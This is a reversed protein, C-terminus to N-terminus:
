GAGGALMDVLQSAITVRFLVRKLGRTGSIVSRLQRARREDPAIWVVLPFTGHAEQERGSRWYAEYAHCKRRL